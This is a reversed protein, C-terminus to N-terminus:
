ALAERQFAEWLVRFCNRRYRLIKERLEAKVRAANVGFFWGHMMEIPLCLMEQPGGGVGSPSPTPTIAIGKAAEAQIPDRHTRRYQASWLAGGHAGVPCQWASGPCRAAFVLVGSSATLGELSNGPVALADGLRCGELRCGKGAAQWALLWGRM